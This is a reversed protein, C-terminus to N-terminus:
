VGYGLRFSTLLGPEDTGAPAPARGVGASFDIWLDDTLRLEAGGNVIWRVVDDERLSVQAELYARYANSGAYFRSGLSGQLSYEDELRM